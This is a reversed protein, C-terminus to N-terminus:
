WIVNLTSLLVFLTLLVTLSAWSFFFYTSLIKTSILDFCFILPALGNYSFLIIFKSAFFTKRLYNEGGLFFFDVIFICACFFFELWLNKGYSSCAVKTWNRSIQAKTSGEVLYYIRRDSAWVNRFGFREKAKNLMEM